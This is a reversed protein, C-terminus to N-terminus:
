WSKKVKLRGDNTAVIRYGKHKQLKAVMKNKPSISQSCSVMFFAVLIVLISKKMNQTQNLNTYTFNIIFLWILFMIAM